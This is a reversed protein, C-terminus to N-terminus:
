QSITLPERVARQHLAAPMESFFFDSAVSREFFSMSRKQAFSKAAPTSRSAISHARRRASSPDPEFACPAAPPSPPSFPAPSPGRPARVVWSVRGRGRFPMKPFAGHQATCVKYLLGANAPRPSARAGRSARGFWFNDRNPFTTLETM